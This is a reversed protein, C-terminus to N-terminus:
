EQDYAQLLKAGIGINSADFAIAFTQRFDKLIPHYKAFDKQCKSIWILNIGKM